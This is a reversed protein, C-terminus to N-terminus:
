LMVFLTCNDKMIRDKMRWKTRFTRKCVRYFLREAFFCFCFVFFVSTSTKYCVIQRAYLCCYYFYNLDIRRNFEYLIETEM